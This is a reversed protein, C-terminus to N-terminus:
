QNLKGTVWWTNINIKCLSAGGGTSLTFSGSPIFTVGSIPTVTLTGAGLNAINIVTYSTSSYPFAVSTNTPVTLICATAYSMTVLANDDTLQLTYSSGTQTNMAPHKVAVLTTYDVPTDSTWTDSGTSMMVNGVPGPTINSPVTINATGDFAVGNINRATQLATATGANGSVSTQDGSNTGTLGLDTKLTALTQVEPAGTGATKRYILSSTAMNAMKALTVASNAITLSTAGTVDGTHTANSVLGSYLSNIANDGTNAGSISSTGTVTLSPTSSGSLVIGNVHTPTIDGLTITMNAASTPNAISFSIGNANTGAISTVTGVGTIVFDGSQLLSHGNISQINGQNVLTAQKANLQTQIDSTVNSLYGFQTPTVSAGYLINLAAASTNVRSGNIQFGKQLNVSDPFIAKYNAAIKWRQASCSITLVLLCISLSLFILLKKM